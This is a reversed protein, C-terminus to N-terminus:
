DKRNQSTATTCFPCAENPKTHRQHANRWMLRLRERFESITERM